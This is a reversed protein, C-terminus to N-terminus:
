AAVCRLAGGRRVTHRAQTRMGFRLTANPLSDTRRPSPSPGGGRRQPMADRGRERQRRQRTRQGISGGRRAASAGRQSQKWRLKEPKSSINMQSSGLSSHSSDRHAPDSPVPGPPLSCRSIPAARSPSKFARLSDAKLSLSLSHSLSTSSSNV